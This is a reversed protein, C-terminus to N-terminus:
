NGLSPTRNTVQGLQSPCVNDLVRGGGGRSFGGLLDTATVGDMLTSVDAGGLSCVLSVLPGFLAVGEAPLLRDPCSDLLGVERVGFEERASTVLICGLCSPSGRLSTGKTALALSQM